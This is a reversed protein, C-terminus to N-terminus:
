DEFIAVHIKGDATVYGRFMGATNFPMSLNGHADIAILGGVGGREEPLGHLVEEAAQGIPVKLYKIRAAIDHAVAYRIFVEGHGTGSVACVGDEAYTGAGIIPSDGVRGAPKNTLGGTSTGAALHGKWLVVTGVTGFAPVSSASRQAGGAKKAGEKRLAEQLQQWREPTWFYAPSVEELGQRVAFRDAGEGVLLVNASREMVARAAAIPNRIRTLGAVAGARRREGDMIAADLENRGDHNFVAGKGANFLPSDELVRIAAEVGDVSTGKEQLARYGATIAAELTDRYAKELKPNARLKERPIAGAGGHVALVVGSVTKTDGARAGPLVLFLMLLALQNTQRM